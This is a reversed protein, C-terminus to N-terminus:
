VMMLFSCCYKNDYRVVHVKVLPALLSNKIKLAKSDELRDFIRRIIKVDGKEAAANMLRMACANISNMMDSTELARPDSKLQQLVRIADDIRGAKVLETALSMLKSPFVILDPKQQFLESFVALAEDLRGHYSYLDMLLLNMGDTFPINQAELEQILYYTSLIIM